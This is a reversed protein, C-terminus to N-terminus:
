DTFRGVLGTFVYSNHGPRAFQARLEAATKGDAPLDHTFPCVFRDPTLLDSTPDILLDPTTPLQGHHDNAYMQMALGIQRLNTPCRRADRQFQGDRLWNLAPVLISILLAIIGVIVLARVVPAGSQARPESGYPLTQNM